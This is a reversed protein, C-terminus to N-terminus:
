QETVSDSARHHDDGFAADAPPGKRLENALRAVEFIEVLEGGQLLLLAGGLQHM